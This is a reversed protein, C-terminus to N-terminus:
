LTCRSGNLKAGIPTLEIENPEGCTCRMPHVQPSGSSVFFIGMWFYWRPHLNVPVERAAEVVVHAHAHEQLPASIYKAYLPPPSKRTPVRSPKMRSVVRALPGCLTHRMAECARRASRFRGSGVWAYDFPSRTVPVRGGDPRTGGARPEVAPVGESGATPRQRVCWSGNLAVGIATM